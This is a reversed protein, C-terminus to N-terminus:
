VAYIESWKMLFDDSITDRLKARARRLRSSVAEEGISLVESIQKMSLEEIYCLELIIRDNANLQDFAEQFEELMQSRECIRKPTEKNVQKTNLFCFTNYIRKKRLLDLSKNKAIKFLLSTIKETRDVKLRYKEWFVLFTEHVIDECDEVSCVIVFVFRKLAAQHQHIITRFASISNLKMGTLLEQSSHDWSNM